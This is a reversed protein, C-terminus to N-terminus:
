GLVVLQSRSLDNLLRQANAEGLRAGTRSLFRGLTTPEDLEALTQSVVRGLQVLRPEGDIPRAVLHLPAEPAPEPLSLGPRDDALVMAPLLGVQFLLQEAANLTDLVRGEFRGAGVQPARAVWAGRPPRELREPTADRERRCVALMHELRLLDPLQPLGAGLEALHERYARAMSGRQQVERHFAPTQFVGRLGALSRTHALVLTTSGKYEDFLGRLARDPRAADVTWSRPDVRRLWGLEEEGLEPIGTGEYVSAAFVPDFLMRVTVRHLAQHSM